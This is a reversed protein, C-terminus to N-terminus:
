ELKASSWLGHLNCFERASVPGDVLPFTAEPKDGPKLVHRLVTNPGVLEIWKIYHAELMPHEVSGVTVRYGNATKEVVPVHKEGAADTTNPELHQMPKGCCVLQGNAPNLIEVINGCVTCRYIQNLQTM